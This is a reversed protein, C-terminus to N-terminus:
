ILVTGLGLDITDCGEQYLPMRLVWNFCIVVNSSKLWVVVQISTKSLCVGHPFCVSSRWKSCWRKLKAVQVPYFTKWRGLNGKGHFYGYINIWDLNAEWLSLDRLTLGRPTKRWGLRPGNTGLGLKDKMMAHDRSVVRKPRNGEDRAVSCGGVRRSDGHIGCNLKSWNMMYVIM